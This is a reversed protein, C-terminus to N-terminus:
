REMAFEMSGHIEYDMGRHLGKVQNLDKVLYGGEDDDTDQLAASKKGGAFVIKGGLGRYYLFDGRRKMYYRWTSYKGRNGPYESKRVAYDRRQLRGNIYGDNTALGDISAGVSANVTRHGPNVFSTPSAPGVYIYNLAGYGERDNADARFLRAVMHYFEGGVYGGSLDVYGEYDAWDPEMPLLQGPPSGGPNLLHESDYLLQLYVDGGKVNGGSVKYWIRRYNSYYRACGEWITTYNGDRTMVGTVLQGAPQRPYNAQFLLDNNVVKDFDDMGAAGSWSGTADQYSLGGTYATWPAHVTATGGNVDVHFRYLGPDKAALSHTWWNDTTHEGVLANDYYVKITGSVNSLGYNLLTADSELLHWGDWIIDGGEAYPGSVSHPITQQRDIIGQWYFDNYDFVRLYARGIMTGVKAEM